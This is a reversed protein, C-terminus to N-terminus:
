DLRIGLPTLNRRNRHCFNESPYFCDGRTRLIEQGPTRGLSLRHHANARTPFIVNSAMQDSGSARCDKWPKGDENCLTLIYIVMSFATLRAACM